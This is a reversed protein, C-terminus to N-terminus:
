HTKRATLGHSQRRALRAPMGHLPTEGSVKNSFSKLRRYVAHLNIIESIALSWSDTELHPIGLHCLVFRDQTATFRERMQHPPLPSRSFSGASYGATSQLM